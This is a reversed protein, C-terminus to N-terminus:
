RALSVFKADVAKGLARQDLPHDGETDRFWAAREPGIWAIRSETKLGPMDYDQLM